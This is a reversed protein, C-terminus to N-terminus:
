EAPKRLLAFYLGDGGHQDPLTQWGHQRPAGTGLTVADTHAGYQTAFQSVVEDNEAALLSCTVYLLRGGPKLVPWLGALIALQQSAFGAIDGPERLIKIDPNRRIVGTASCPVDALIADFPKNMLAEPLESADAVLPTLRLDLRTTNEIVRQLRAESIDLALLEEIAPQLELLAACADLIREGAQPALLRAVLQAASDQVSAAGESFGPLSGVDVPRSLVVGDQSVDCATAEMEAETLQRLYDDRTSKLQNVRLTMPPRHRAALAIQEAADDYQACLETHLWGPLARQAAPSLVEAAVSEQRQYTRLVGNVVGKAWPKKLARTANVTESVVAHTPTSLHELEYLGICLLAMIDQDKRRLPKALFSLCTAELCPWERLTGYVLEQCLPRQSTAAADLADPLLRNLSQGALVRGIIDAAVARTSSM